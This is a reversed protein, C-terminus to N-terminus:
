YFQKMALNVTTSDQLNLTYDNESPLMPWSYSHFQHTWISFLVSVTSAASASWSINTASRHWWTDEWDDHRTQKSHSRGDDIVTTSNKAQKSHWIVTDETQLWTERRGDNDSTLFIFSPKYKTKFEALRSGVYEWDFISKQEATVKTPMLNINKPTRNIQNM